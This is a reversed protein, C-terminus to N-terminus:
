PINVVLISMFHLTLSRLYSSANWWIYLHRLSADEDHFGCLKQTWRRRTMKWLLWLISYFRVSSNSLKLTLRIGLWPILAERESSGKRGNTKSALQSLGAVSTGLSGSGHGMSRLFVSINSREYKREYKTGWSELLWVSEVIHSVLHMPCM